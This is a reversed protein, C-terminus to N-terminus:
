CTDGTLGWWTWAYVRGLGLIVWTDSSSRSSINAPVLRPGVTIDAQNILGM